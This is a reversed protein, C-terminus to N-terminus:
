RQAGEPLMSSENCLRRCLSVLPEMRAAWSYKTEVCTRAARGLQARLRDDSLLHLIQQRWQAPTDAQLADSGPQVDLGELAAPSAVVPRGMAMAELVKNQIGRAIHLPAIAVSAQALFPRVDPVAGTVHIGPSEALRQVARAPDRGVISFTLEPVQRKLEPWVERAFWCAGDANPRYDMTGVFVLAPQNAPAPEAPAFYELDVGNGVALVTGRHSNLTQAEAQSVLLVAECRDLAQQELRGVGRAERAFVWRKPGRAQRAYSAWKASDVDVLDMVRAPCPAALLLSLVSSCYGIALDFPERVAERLIAAQLSPCHFFGETVSRGALLSLGGRILGSKGGAPALLVKECWQSLPAATQPDSPQHTLSALTVRFHRALTRIQHFARLREGKDPPFPLRHTIFLLRKM